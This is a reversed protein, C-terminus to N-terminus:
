APLGEEFAEIIAIRELDSERGYSARRIYTLHDYTAEKLWEIDGKEAMLSILQTLTPTKITRAM